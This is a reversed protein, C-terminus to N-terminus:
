KLGEMIKDLPKELNYKKIIREYEESEKQNLNGGLILLLNLCHNCFEWFENVTLSSTGRIYETELGQNITLYPKKLIIEKIFNQDEAGPMNQFILVRQIAPIICGHFFRNQASSRSLESSMEIEIETDINASLFDKINKKNRDSIIQSGGDNVYASYRLKKM